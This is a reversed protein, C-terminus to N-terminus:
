SVDSYLACLTTKWCRLAGVAHTLRNKAALM